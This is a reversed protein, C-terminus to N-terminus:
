KKHSINIPTLHSDEIHLVNPTHVTLIKTVMNTNNYWTHLVDSNYHATDGPYLEYTKDKFKLTLIGELVYVFEQGKHAFLADHSGKPAPLLVSIKPFIDMDLNNTIQYNIHETSEMYLVTNEYSKHVISEHDAQDATDSPLLKDISTNLAKTISMLSDISITTQGREFKSLYGQSLDTAEGLEKLTLGAKKRLENVKNGIYQIDKM